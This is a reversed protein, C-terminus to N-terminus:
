GQSIKVQSIVQELDTIDYQGLIIQYGIDKRSIATSQTCNTIYLEDVILTVMDLMETHGGGGYTSIALVDNRAWNANTPAILPSLALRAVYTNDQAEDFSDSIIKFSELKWGMGKLDNEIILKEELEELTGTLEMTKMRKMEEGGQTSSESVTQIREKEM